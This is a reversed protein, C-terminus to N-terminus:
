KLFSSSPPLPSLTCMICCSPLSFLETPIQSKINNIYLTCHTLSLPSKIANRTGVKTNILFRTNRNKIEMLISIAKLVKNSKLVKFHSYQTNLHRSGGGVESGTHPTRATDGAPRDATSGAVEPEPWLRRTPAPASLSGPGALDCQVAKEKSVGVM